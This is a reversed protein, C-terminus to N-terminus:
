GYLSTQLIHNLLVVFYVLRSSCVGLGALIVSVQGENEVSMLIHDSLSSNQETRRLVRGRALRTAILLECSTM